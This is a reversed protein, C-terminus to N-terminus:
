EHTFFAKVVEKSIKELYCYGIRELQMHTQAKEELISMEVLGKKISGDNWTIDIPIGESVWQLKKDAKGMEEVFECPRGYAFNALQLIRFIEGMKLHSDTKSIFVKNNMIKLKREGREPKDPYLPATTETKQLGKFELEVPDIVAFYRNSDEDILKRNENYLIDLDVTTEHQTLGLNIMYNRIAQPVIGRKKYSRLLSLRVDDYGTFIGNRIGETIKSKSIIMDERPTFKGYIAVEPYKWDMYEYIIKQKRESASLDKGRIIHTTAMDHDDYASAFDLMPWVKKNTEFPHVPNDIIRFTPWNIVSPDKEGPPTLMRGVAQGQKYEGSLMKKWRDLNEKSSHKTCPCQKSELTQKTYDIENRDEKECTCVFAFGKELLEQFFKYYEDFRASAREVRHYQVGLWKLDEEAWEYAEKVPRKNENKPDTDDFRLILTGKYKKTYEDNLIIMRAHGIHLPGNPNPAMRMIVKGEVANALEPLKKEQVKKELLEPYKKRLEKEQDDPSMKNVKQVIKAILPAVEKMKTKISPNEAILKGIIAGQSANGGHDFANKLCFKYINEEINTM